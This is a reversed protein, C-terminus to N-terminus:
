GLMTAKLIWAPSFVFFYQKGASIDGPRVYAFGASGIAFVYAASEQQPTGTIGASANFADVADQCISADTVLTIASPPAWPNGAAVVSTSDSYRYLRRVMRLYTDVSDPQSLCPTAQAAVRLPVSNLCGILLTAPLLLSARM